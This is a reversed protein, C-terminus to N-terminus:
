DAEVGRKTSFPMQWSVVFEATGRREFTLGRWEFLRAMATLMSVGGYDEGVGRGAAELVENTVTVGIEGRVRDCVVAVSPVSGSRGHRVANVVVENLFLGFGGHVPCTVVIDDPWDISVALPAGAAAALTGNDWHLRQRLERDSAAIRFVDVFRDLTARAQVVDVVSERPLPPTADWHDLLWSTVSIRREIYEALWAALAPDHPRSLSYELVRALADVSHSLLGGLRRREDQRAASQTDELLLALDAAEDLVILVGLRHREDANLAEIPATVAVSRVVAYRREPRGDEGTTAVPVGYARRPEPTAVQMKEYLARSRADPWVLDAFRRGARVGIADAARNASVIADTNPDVVVLPVQMTNLLNQKEQLAREAARREGDARRRNIEFGGILLALIATLLVVAGVPFAPAVQPFWALLWTRDAVHFAALAGTDVVIQRLPSAADESTSGTRDSAAKLASRIEPSVNAPLNQAFAAWSTLTGPALEVAVGHVPMELSAALRSWDVNFAFDVALVARGFGSFEVPRTLTSVLGRGGLDLYFGSYAVGPSRFFFDDPAFAPLTPRASLVELERGAAAASDAPQDTWPLSLLTGAESVAYVRVIRIDSGDIAPADGPRHPRVARDVFTLMDVARRIFVNTTRDDALARRQTLVLLSGDAAVLQERRLSGPKQFSEAGARFQFENVGDNHSAPDLLEAVRVLKQPVGEAPDSLSRDFFGAHEIARRLWAMAGPADTPRVATRTAVLDFVAAARAQGAREDFARWVERATFAALAVFVLLGM